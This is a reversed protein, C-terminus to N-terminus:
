RHWSMLLSWIPPILFLTRCMPCDKSDLM